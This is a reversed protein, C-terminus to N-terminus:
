QCESSASTTFEVEKILREVVDRDSGTFVLVLAHANCVRVLAAEYAPGEKSFDSRAFAIKGLRQVPTSNIFQFGDNENARIVNRMYAAASRQKPAESSVMEAYLFMAERTPGWTRKGVARVSISPHGMSPGGILLPAELRLDSPPKLEVGLSGNVYYDNKIYGAELPTSKDIAQSWAKSVYASHLLGILITVIYVLRRRQSMM